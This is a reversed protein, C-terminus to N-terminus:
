QLNQSLFEPEIKVFGDTRVGTVGSRKEVILCELGYLGFIKQFTIVGVLGQGMLCEGMVRESGGSGGFGTWCSRKDM